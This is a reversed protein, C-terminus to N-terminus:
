AEAIGERFDFIAVTEEAGEEGRDAVAIVGLVAANTVFLGSAVCEAEIVL